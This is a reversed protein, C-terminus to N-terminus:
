QLSVDSEGEGACCVEKETLRELEERCRKCLWDGWSAYQRCELCLCLEDDEWRPYVDGWTALYM